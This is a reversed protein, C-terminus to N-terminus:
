TIYGSLFSVNITNPGLDSGSQQTPVILDYSGSTFVASVVNPGVDILNSSTIITDFVSGSYFSVYVNNPGVDVLNSSTVITDWTSGSYFSVGIPSYESGSVSFVGSQISGSYFSVYNNNIAEIALPHNEIGGGIFSVGIHGTDIYPVLVRERFFRAKVSQSIYSIHISHSFEPVEIFQGGTKLVLQSVETSNCSLQMLISSPIEWIQDSIVEDQSLDYITQM